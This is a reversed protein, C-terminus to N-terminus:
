NGITSQRTNRNTPLGEGVRNINETSQGNGMRMDRKTKVPQSSINREQVKGKPEERVMRSKANQALIERKQAGKELYSSPDRNGSGKAYNWPKKDNSKVEPKTNNPPKNSDRNQNIQVGTQNPFSQSRDENTETQQKTWTTLLCLVPM